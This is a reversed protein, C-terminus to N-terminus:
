TRSKPVWDAGIDNTAGAATNVTTAKEEVLTVLLAREPSSLLPDTPQARVKSEM